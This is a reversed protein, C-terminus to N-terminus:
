VQVLGLVIDQVIAATVESASTLVMHNMGDSDLTLILHGGDDDSNVLAECETILSVGTAVVLSRISEVVGMTSVEVRCMARGILGLLDSVGPSIAEGTCLSTLDVHWIHLRRYVRSIAELQNVLLGTTMRTVDTNSVDPLDVDSLM